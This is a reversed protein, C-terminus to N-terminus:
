QISVSFSRPKVTARPGLVRTLMARDAESLTTFEVGVEHRDDRGRCREYVVRAGAGVTGRRFAILLHLLSGVGFPECSVFMCGGQGLSHLKAFDERPGDGLRRVMVANFSPVRPYRRRVRVKALMSEGEECRDILIYPVSM